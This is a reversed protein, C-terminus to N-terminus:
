LVPPSKRSLTEPPILSTLTHLRFMDLFCLCLTKGKDPASLNPDSRPLTTDGIQHPPARQVCFFLGLNIDFVYLM